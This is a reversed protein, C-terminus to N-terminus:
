FHIKRCTEPEFLSSFSIKKMLLKKWNIDINNQRWKLFRLLNHIWYIVKIQKFVYHFKTMLRKINNLNYFMKHKSSRKYSKQFHFRTFIRKNIIWSIACWTKSFAFIHHRQIIHLVKYLDFFKPFTLRINKLLIRMNTLNKKLKLAKKNWKLM